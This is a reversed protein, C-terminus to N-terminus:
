RIEKSSINHSRPASSCNSCPPLQDQFSPRFSFAQYLTISLWQLPLLVITLYIIRFYRDKGPLARIALAALLVLRSIKNELIICNWM